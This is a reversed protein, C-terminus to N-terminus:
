LRRQGSSGQCGHQDGDEPRTRMPTLPITFYLLIYEVITITFAPPTLGVLRMLVDVVILVFAMSIAGGACAALGNILINYAKVM